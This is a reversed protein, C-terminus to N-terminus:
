LEVSGLVSSISRKKVIPNSKLGDTGTYKRKRPMAKGHNIHIRWFHMKSHYLRDNRYECLRCCYWTRGSEDNQRSLGDTCEKQPCKQASPLTKKHASKTPVEESTGVGSAAGPLTKKELQNGKSRKGEERRPKSAAAAQSNGDDSLLPAFFSPFSLSFSSSSLLPPPSPLSEAIGLQLYDSSPAPGPDLPAKWCRSEPRQQETAAMDEDSASDAADEARPQSASLLVKHATPKLRDTSAHEIHVDRFILLTQLMQEREPASTSARSACSDTEDGHRVKAALQPPHAIVM